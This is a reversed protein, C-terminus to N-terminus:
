AAEEAAVADTQSVDFVTVMIFRPRETSLEDAAPAPAEDRADRIPAWIMHGHQGKRVFRGARRWQQFGGVITAEPCQAALLCANHGSLSRGEVTVAGAMRAALAARVDPSMVAISKVLGRFKERRADTQAQQAVTLTRKSTM